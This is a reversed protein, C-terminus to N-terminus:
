MDRNSHPYDGIWFKKWAAVLRQEPPIARSRRPRPPGHLEPWLPKQHQFNRERWEDCLRQTQGGGPSLWRLFISLLALALWFLWVGAGWHWLTMWAIRLMSWLAGHWPISGIVIGGILLCAFGATMILDGISCTLGRRAIKIRYIDCLYKFKTDPTMRQHDSSSLPENERRRVPMLGGNSFAALANCALGIMLLCTDLRIWLPDCLYLMTLFCATGMVTKDRM